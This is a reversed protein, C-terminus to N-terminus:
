LKEGSPTQLTTEQWRFGYEAALDAWLLGETNEVFSPCHVTLNESCGSFASKEILVDSHLHLDTLPYGGFANGWVYRVNYGLDIAKAQTGDFAGDAIAVVLAHTDNGVFSPVFYTGGVPTGEVRILVFYNDLWIATPHDERTAPRFTYTVGGDTCSVTASDGPATTPTETAGTTEPAEKQGDESPLVWIFLAILLAGLALLCILVLPWRRMPRMPPQIQEKEELSTMCRLCFHANDELEANCKPCNKM